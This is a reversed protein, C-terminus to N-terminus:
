YDLSVSFFLREFKDGDSSVPRTLARAYELNIRLSSPLTLRIGGGTSALTQQHTEFEGDNWVAGIDYFGYLQYGKLYSKELDRGYRLEVSGGLGHDGAIESFDYARGIYSGGLGFEESSLLEDDAIQGAVQLQLGFTDTLGQTRSLDFRFKRFEADAGFRSRPGDDESAGLVNLGLSVEAFAYLGAGWPDTGTYNLNVRIARVQDEFTDVGFEQESVHNIEFLGNIWLSNDRQRLIPHAIRLGARFSESETEFAADEGGADSISASVSGGIVTGADGINGAVRIEGYKLEQPQRPITFVGAQVQTDTDWLRNLGVATWLETRGASETGRNDLFANAYVRKQRLIFRLRYRGSGPDLEEIAADDVILGFTDGLLLMTRELTELRAPREQGLKEAMKKALRGPQDLGEFSVDEFHGEVVRIRIVGLDLPQPPLFAQSLYYGADHYKETIKEILAGLDEVTVTQALMDEYLPAFEAAKFVEAGEVMVAAVIIKQAGPESPQKPAQHEISPLAEDTKKPARQPLSREIRTSPATRDGDDRDQAYSPGGSNLNLLAVLFGFKGIKLVRTILTKFIGNSDIKTCRIIVKHGILHKFLNQDINIRM